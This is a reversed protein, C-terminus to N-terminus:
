YIQEDYELAPNLSLKNTLFKNKWAVYAAIVTLLILFSLGTALTSKESIFGIISPGALFGILGGTTVMAYGEVPSVGPINGSASFLVPVICSCGFGVLVYGAIAVIVSTAIVVLIFGTAALLCGTIVVEKSGRRTTLEDGNLRGITMAVAFGLYGLSVLESAGRLSEKLYIASWDAVCGEAMFIVMCLFSISLISLSPLKLGSSGHIINKHSLLHKSNMILIGWISATIIVVQWGSPINLGFFIAALGASIGGGISYLSHSTSMLKRKYIKELRNVTTNSSVSNLFSIMGYLYLGCWLMILSSSNVMAIMILGNLMYGGLMWKGVPIKSFLRTSLGVGTLAGVPSLLLSLGLTGDTLGLRVKIGPIAAVWIGFLLSSCCFLFGVALVPKLKIYSSFNKLIL